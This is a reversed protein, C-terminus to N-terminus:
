NIYRTRYVYLIFGDELLVKILAKVFDQPVWADLCWTYLAVFSSLWHDIKYNWMAIEVRQM